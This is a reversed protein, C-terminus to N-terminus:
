TLNESAYITLLTQGAKIEVASGDRLQISLGSPRGKLLHEVEGIGGPFKITQQNSEISLIQASDIMVGNSFVISKM